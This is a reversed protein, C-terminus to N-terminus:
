NGHLKPGEWACPTGLRIRRLDGLLTCSRARSCSHPAFGRSSVLSVLVSSGAAAGRATRMSGHLGLHARSNKLVLVGYPHSLVFMGISKRHERIRDGLPHFFDQTDPLGVSFRPSQCAM